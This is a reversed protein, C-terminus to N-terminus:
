TGMRGILRGAASLVHRRNLDMLADLNRARVPEVM